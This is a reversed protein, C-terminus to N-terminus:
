DTALDKGNQNRFITSGKERVGYMWDKKKFKIKGYLM